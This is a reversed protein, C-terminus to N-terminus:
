DRTLSPAAPRPGARGGGRPEPGVGDNAAMGFDFRRLHVREFRRTGPYPGRPTRGAM